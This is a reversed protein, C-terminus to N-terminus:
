QQLMLEHSMEDVVVVPALTLAKSLEHQVSMMQLDSNHEPMQTMPFMM